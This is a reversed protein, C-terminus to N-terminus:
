WSVGTAVTLLNMIVFSLSLVLVGIGARLLMQKAQETKMPSGESTIYLYGAYTIVLATISSSTVILVKLFTMAYGKINNIQEDTNDSGEGSSVANECKITEDQKLHPFEGPPCVKAEAVEANAAEIANQIKRYDFPVESGDRKIIKM